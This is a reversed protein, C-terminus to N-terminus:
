LYKELEVLFSNLKWVPIIFVGNEKILEEQLLTVILPHFELKLNLKAQAIPNKKLFKLLQKVRERQKEVAHRLGSKKYRGEGWQKCDICLVRRSGIAVLDIEHRRKTKFRFNRYIKFGNSNLIEGVTEEFERWDFKELIYEITKESLIDRKIKELYV